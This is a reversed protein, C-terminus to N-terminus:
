DEESDTFYTGLAPGGQVISSHDHIPIALVDFHAKLLGNEGIYWIVNTEAKKHHYTVKSTNEPAEIIEGVETNEVYFGNQLEVEEGNEAMHNGTKPAAYKPNAALYPINLEAKMGAILYISMQSVHEVGM